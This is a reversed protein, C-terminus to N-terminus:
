EVEAGCLVLVDLFCRIFRIPPRSCSESALGMIDEISVAPGMLNEISGAPGMLNEISPGLRVRDNRIKDVFVSLLLVLLFTEDSIDSAVVLMMM